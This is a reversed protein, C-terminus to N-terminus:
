IKEYRHIEKLWKDICTRHFEHHCPLVRMNDGEEYEVLCIYCRNFCFIILTSILSIVEIRHLVQLCQLLSLLNCLSPLCKSLVMRKISTCSRMYSSLCPILLLMLHLFLDLLLCLHAPLYFLQNSTFKM